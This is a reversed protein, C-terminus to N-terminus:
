TSNADCDPPDSDTQIEIAALNGLEQLRGRGQNDESAGEAGHHHL